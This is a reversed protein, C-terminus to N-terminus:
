AGSDKGDIAKWVKIFDATERVDHVRVIRVGGDLARALAAFGGWLREEVGRGTIAGIFSKRSYGIMVPFGLGRFDGIERFLALNHELRKGFGIGPDVVIKERPIGAAVAAGAREALWAIIESTVDDYHPKEQMTEPTGLMHMIVVAANARRVTELMAPDHRLGSVDNVISAGEGLAAEAVLANRTDISLPAPITRVLRTIIPRVRALEDAASLAAAGPRTSEGGIDIIAAGAEAMEAAHECAAGPDLHRGGDSFSDPTVNLVGMIVPGSTLDIAGQPLSLAAPPEASAAVLRAIRAGLEALGFPQRAFKEPLRSLRSRDAVIYVTSRQPGGTIVDRHVAADGGISLLQQKIINAAPAAVGDVRIVLTEAKEEIVRIGYPDVGAAALYRALTGPSRASIFRLSYSM